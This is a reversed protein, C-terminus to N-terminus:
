ILHVQESFETTIAWISLAPILRGTPRYQGTPSVRRPQLGSYVRLSGHAGRASCMRGSAGLANTRRM